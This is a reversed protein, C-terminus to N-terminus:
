AIITKADNELVATVVWIDSGTKKQYFHIGAVNLCKIHQHSRLCLHLYGRQSDKDHWMRYLQTAVHTM